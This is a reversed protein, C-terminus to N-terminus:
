RFIFYPSTKKKERKQRQSDRPKAQKNMKKCSGRLNSFQKNIMKKQLYSPHITEKLVGIKIALWLFNHTLFIIRSHVGIICKLGKWSLDLITSYISPHVLLYFLLGKFSILFYLNNWNWLFSGGRLLLSNWLLFCCFYIHLNFPSSLTPTQWHSSVSTNCKPAFHLRLKNPVVFFLTNKLVRAITIKKLILPMNCPGLQSRFAKTKAPAMHEAGLGEKGGLLVEFITISLPISGKDRRYWGLAKRGLFWSDGSVEKLSWVVELYYKITKERSQPM